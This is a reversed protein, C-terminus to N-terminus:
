SRRRTADRVRTGLKGAGAHRITHTAHPGRHGVTPVGDRLLGTSSSGRDLRFSRREVFLVAQRVLCGSRLEGRSGLGRLEVLLGAGRLLRSCGLRGRTSLGLLEVLLVADALLRGCSPVSCHRLHVLEVLLRSGLVDVAVNPVRGCQLELALLALHAHVFPNLPGLCLIAQRESLALLAAAKDLEERGLGADTRV